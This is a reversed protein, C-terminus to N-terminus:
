QSFALGGRLLQLKCGGSGIKKLETKSSNITKKQKPVPALTQLFAQAPSIAPEVPPLPKPKLVEVEAQLVTVEGKLTNIKAKQQENLAHMEQAKKIAKERM